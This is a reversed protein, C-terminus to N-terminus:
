NIPNIEIDMLEYAEGIMEYMDICIKEMEEDNFQNKKYSILIDNVFPLELKELKAEDPIHFGKRMESEENNGLVVIERELVWGYDNEGTIEMDPHIMIRSYNNELVSKM